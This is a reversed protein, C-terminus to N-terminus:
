GLKLIASGFPEMHLKGSALVADAAWVVKASGCPRTVAAPTLNFVCLMHEGPAEREIVLVGAEDRAKSAGTRLAVSEQRVAVLARATHLMSETLREQKDVSMLRQRADVPLWPEKARTFGGNPAEKWPMPTRCGDRGKTAPWGAIGWPDQLKELPVEGEPLGLEEGQYLFVTGRLSLLLSLFLPAARGPPAGIAEGWRTVVRAVDHNSFAWSPWGEGPRDQWCSVIDVFGATGPWAKLFDFAYATHLRQDGRTYEAMLDFSGPALEGVMMRDKYSDVLNRLREVFELAEPQNSNYLHMQMDRPLAPAPDGSPPNDRLQLDHAYYNAVDLRFGDVGRNLWFRATELIASRVGAARINLQPQSPLFNHLYYQRRRPEWTWAPGGFWAQWNNPPSGDPRADAWVYWDSKENTRNTRSEAFWPHDSSTHSWVQDTIVKLDLRHATELLADFDKLTGFLPDVDCYDSVDYGFDRMPSAVFPSLWIGDVHLSKVYGLKATIGKLDGVGDGNTDLFSRPYIQYIVAGRWWGDASM